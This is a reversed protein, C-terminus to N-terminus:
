PTVGRTLNVVISSACLPHHPSASIGVAFDSQQSRSTDAYLIRKRLVAVGWTDTEAYLWRELIRIRMCLLVVYGSLIWTDMRRVAALNLQSPSVNPTMFIKLPRIEFSDLCSRVRAIPVAIVGDATERARGLSHAVLM